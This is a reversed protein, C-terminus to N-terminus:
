QMYGLRAQMAACCESPSACCAKNAQKKTQKNTQKNAAAFRSVTSDQTQSQKRSDMHAIKELLENRRVLNQHQLKLQILQVETAALQAQLGTPPEQSPLNRLEFVGGRFYDCNPLIGTSSVPNLSSVQVLPQPASLQCAFSQADDRSNPSQRTSYPLSDTSEPTEAPKHLSQQAQGGSLMMLLEMEQGDPIHPRDLWIENPEFEVAQSAAEESDPVAFDHLSAPQRPCQDSCLDSFAIQTMDKLQFNYIDNAVESATTNPCFVACKNGIVRPAVSDLHVVSM